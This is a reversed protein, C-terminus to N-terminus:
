KGCEGCTSPREGTHTRQHRLLKSWHSFSKGCENCIFPRQRAIRHRGGISEGEEEYCVGGGGGGGGGAGASTAAGSNLQGGRKKSKAPAPSHPIVTQIIEHPLVEDECDSVIGDDAIYVRRVVDGEDSDQLEVVGPEEQEMPFPPGPSRLFTPPP